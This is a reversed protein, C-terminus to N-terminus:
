LRDGVSGEQAAAGPERVPLHWTEPDVHLGLVRRLYQALVREYRQPDRNWERTHSAQPFPVFDVLEPRLRALRRSPDPPVTRDELAHILLTPHSLFRAYFEPRMQDLAIPEHLRVMRTGVRSTMMWIALARMPRPARLAKAHHVLIDHWDIAPSDLVVAAIRDRHASFVSARLAIGGGMSWGMLVIRRAGEDLAYEIAAEADEWEASGLHHMSDASAAAGTDNRYTIALSTLGLERLVPIVRLTEGRTAGHGHIMIVWTGTGAVSSDADDRAVVGPDPDVRWAPMPGVPSAVEVDRYAIGHASRPSGAWFYGNTKAPGVTLPQDTDAALVPRSVTGPTPRGCVSGLRLHVSGGGQRLALYGDRVTERTVDLHVRDDHRARVTVDPRSRASMQPVLPLRAMVRAGLTLLGGSLVFASM